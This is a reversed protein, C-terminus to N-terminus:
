FSRGHCADAMKSLGLNVGNALLVTLLGIRDRCPAGTRLDSFAEAFGLRHDVELLVDTIRVPAMDGYLKLVLTDAGDPVTKELRDLHLVGDKLSASPLSGQLAATGVSQLKQALTVTRSQLWNNTDFPVALRACTRVAAMPAFTTEVERYRRSDALWIDGSRLANRLEFLVATEWLQRDFSGDRRMRKLWKPRVFSIPVAAVSSRNYWGASIIMCQGLGPPRHVHHALGPRHPPELRRLLPRRHGPLLRVRPEVVLQRASVALHERGPEIRASPGAAAGAHSQRARRSGQRPAMRGPGDAHGWPSRSGRSTRSGGPAPADLHLSM